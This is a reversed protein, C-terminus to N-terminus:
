RKPQREFRSCIYIFLLPVRMGCICYCIDPRVAQHLHAMTGKNTEGNLWKYFKKKDKRKRGGERERGRRRKRERVCVCMYQSTFAKVDEALRNTKNKGM